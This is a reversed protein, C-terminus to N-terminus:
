TLQRMCSLTHMIHNIGMAWYKLLLRMLRVVMAWHVGCSRGWTYVFGSSDPVVAHEIVLLSAIEELHNPQVHDSSM